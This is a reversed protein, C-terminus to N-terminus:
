YLLKKEGNAYGVIFAGKVNTSQRIQEANEYSNGAMIQYKYWGNEIVMNVPFRGNYINSIVNKSLPQKSAALQVAFRMDKPLSSQNRQEMQERADVLNRLEGNEYAVIFAENIGTSRLISQAKYYYKTGGLQYKFWGEENRVHVIKDGKYKEDLYDISLPVKSAAIQVYFLINETPLPRKESGASQTINTKTKENTTLTKDTHTQKHDYALIVGETLGVVKKYDEADQFTDFISITYIYNGSERKMKVEKGGYYLGQLTSQSLPKQDAPLQIYYDKEDPPTTQKLELHANPEMVEPYEPEHLTTEQAPVPQKTQKTQVPDASLLYEYWRGRIQGWSYNNTMYHKVSDSINYSDDEQLRLYINLLEDNVLVSDPIASADFNTNDAPITEVPTTDQDPTPETEQEQDYESVPYTDATSPTELGYVIFLANKLENLSVKYYNMAEMLQQAESRQEMKDSASEISQAQGKYDLALEESERAAVLDEKLGPNIEWFSTIVDKLLEYQIDFGKKFAKFSKIQLSTAEELLKDIEKKVKKDSTDNQQQQEYVDVYTENAETILEDAKAIHENSKNFKKLESKELVSEISSDDEFQAYTIIHSLFFLWVYIFIRYNM